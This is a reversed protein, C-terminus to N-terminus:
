RPQPNANAWVIIVLVGDAHRPGGIVAPNGRAAQINTTVETVNGRLLRVRMRVTDGSVSEPTVELLRDGPVPWQQQSGIPVEARYRELSTFEQYGTLQRLRPLFKQLRDDPPTDPALKLLPSAPPADTALMVRAGFRVVQQAHLLVPAAAILLAMALMLLPRLASRLRRRANHLRSMVTGMPIELVDAIEKYSLGEIDSLTIIDRHQASLTALARMIRERDQTTAAVEDPAQQGAPQDVMVRDWEEEPVRETGFARGRAARSRARDSAVNMVIRFLWTYFASQGRFAPLAQYARIFAEQAVDWAEERDRLVNYALRWVRQRYKEVLPEFAALDGRRCREILAADDEASV